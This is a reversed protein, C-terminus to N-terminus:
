QMSKTHLISVPVDVKGQWIRVVDVTQKAVAASSTFSVVTTPISALSSDFVEHSWSASNNAFCTIFDKLMPDDEFSIAFCVDIPPHEIAVKYVYHNDYSVISVRLCRRIGDALEPRDLLTVSSQQASVVQVHSPLHYHRVCLDGSFGQLSVMVNTEIHINHLGPALSKPFQQPWEYTAVEHSLFDAAIWVKQLPRADRPAINDWTVIPDSLYFSLRSRKAIRFGNVELTFPLEDGIRVIPRVAKLSICGTSAQSLYRNWSLDSVKGASRAAEVLEGWRDDWPADVRCQYDLAAGIVRALEDSQYLGLYYRRRLESLATSRLHSQSSSADHILWALPMYEVVWDAMWLSVGAISPGIFLCVLGIFLRRRANRVGVTFSRKSTLQNGCEPCALSDSARYSLIFNCRRCRIHNDKHNAEFIMSSLLAIGLAMFIGAIVFLMAM